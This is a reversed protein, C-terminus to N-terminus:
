YCVDFNPAGEAKVYLTMDSTPYAVCMLVWGHEIQRDCLFTQDSQDCDSGFSQWSLCTTCAGARCSYPLDIGRNEAADLIYEDNRCLVTPYWEIGHDFYNLMHITYTATL